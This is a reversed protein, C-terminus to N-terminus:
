KTGEGRAKHEKAWQEVVHEAIPWQSEPQSVVWEAVTERFEHELREYLAFVAERNYAV